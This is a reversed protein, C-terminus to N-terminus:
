HHAPTQTSQRGTTTTGQAPAVVPGTRYESGTDSESGDLRSAAQPWRATLAMLVVVDLTIVLVAWLPYAPLWLMRLLAHLVVVVIATIRAWTSATFLGCGTIALITGFGILTWGLGTVDVIRLEGDTFLVGKDDLLAIFGECINMAGLVIMMTAGFM